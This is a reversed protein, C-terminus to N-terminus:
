APFGTADAPTVTAIGAAAQQITFNGSSRSKDGEFDVWCYLPRTADTAPTSDYYVARRATITSSTWQPDDSDWKVVNLTNSNVKTTLAVGGATYGTGVVENTVDNKYDHTDQNPTYTNTTLM